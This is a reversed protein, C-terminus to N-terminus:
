SREESDGLRHKIAAAIAPRDLKGNANHPLDQHWFIHQPVMFGPLVTKLYALLGASDGSGMAAVAIAQGLKADDVGVAVAQSALGSALVAEEVETPSIRNGLTKIMEDDRGVFYLFGDRDRRVTDGSWVAMGGFQAFDPAPRFRQRSREPDRWYGQAVLPGAHVLEGPEGAACLSGDPRVVLVEAHPIAKGISDPRADVLAPDLYTSRFAETLGYMLYLRAQPFLVRLRRLLAQPMRGGSNTIYRLSNAAEQPWDVDALQRWLPPVCGLGTIRHRAVAKVVDAAFLYDHLVVHAGAHLGSLLQNLGYDFSLPLLALLRDEATNELYEVVARAGLALNAHSLMVGKPRGTSGSTYLIAALMGPKAALAAAPTHGNVAGLGYRRPGQDCPAAGVGGDVLLLHRLDPLAAWTEQLLEARAKATVLIAAGSDALIHSVQRAKLQPNVPVFVHGASVAGLMAAVAERQKPLYVAVRAGPALGLGQLWGSFRAIAQALEAHNITGARDTLAPRQSHQALSRELLGTLTLGDDFM